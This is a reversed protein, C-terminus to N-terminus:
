AISGARSFGRILAAFTGGSVPNADTVNLEILKRHFRGLQTHPIGPFLHHEWHYQFFPAILASSFANVHHSRTHFMSTDDVAGRHEAVTRIADLFPAVSVASAFWIFWLDVHGLAYLAILAPIHFLACFIVRRKDAASVETENGTNTETVRRSFITSLLMDALAGGFLLMALAKLLSGRSVNRRTVFGAPDTETALYDHHAQHSIMYREVTLGIPLAFLLNGAWDNLAQTRSLNRHGAEHLVNIMIHQLYGFALWTLIVSLLAKSSGAYLYAVGIIPLWAVVAYFVIWRNDVRYYDKLSVNASKLVAIVKRRDHEVNESSTASLQDM